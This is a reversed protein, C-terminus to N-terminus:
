PNSQASKVHRHALIFWPVGVLGVLVSATKIWLAVMFGTSLPEPYVTEVVRAVLFLAVGLAVVLSSPQRRKIYLWFTFVLLAPFVVWDSNLTVYGHSM